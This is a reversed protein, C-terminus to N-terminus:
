DRHHPDEVSLSSSLKDLQEIVRDINLVNELVIAQQEGPFTFVLRGSRVLPLYYELVDQVEKTYNMRFTSIRKQSELFGGVVVLENSEIKVYHFRVVVLSVVMLVAWILFVALYFQPSALATVGTLMRLMGPFTHWYINAIVLGLILIVAVALAILAWRVEFDVCISFLSIALVVLFVSALGRDLKRAAALKGPEVEDRAESPGGEVATASAVEAAQQQVVAEIQRSAGYFHSIIACVLACLAMPYLVPTKPWMRVILCFPQASSSNGVPVAGASSSPAPSESAPMDDTMTQLFNDPVARSNARAARRRYCRWEGGGRCAIGKAM